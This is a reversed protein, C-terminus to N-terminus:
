RNEQVWRLITSAFREPSRNWEMTHLSDPLAELSVSPNISAFEQSLEFPVVDDAESHIVLCPKDLRRSRTWDLSGFDIADGAGVLPALRLSGMSAVMCLALWNPLKALRAGHLITRRWDTVPGVLILSDISDRHEAREAALLAITGGMSWGMLVIREAGREKAYAIAPDIDKWESLGLSSVGLPHDPGEGDGRYTVVLSHVGSGALASVGRLPSSRTVRSGHIHIVWTRESPAGPFYWAPADGFETPLSVNLYPGIEDPRIFRQGSWDVIATGPLPQGELPTVRRLVRDKRVALVEGVVASGSEWTVRYTGEATTFNSERFSAANDRPDSTDMRTRVRSLDLRLVQRTLLRLVGVCLMLLGTAAGAVIGVATWVNSAM